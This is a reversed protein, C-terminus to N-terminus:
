AKWECYSTSTEWLRVRILEKGEKCIAPALNASIWITLNEATPIFLINNLWSHDLMSIIRDNVIDKLKAFDIIMGSGDTSGEVEIELKYSHGHDNSCPGDYDPLKHGA